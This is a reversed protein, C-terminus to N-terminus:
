STVAAPVLQNLVNEELIKVHHAAGKYFNATNRLRMMKM